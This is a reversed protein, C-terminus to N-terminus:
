ENVVLLGLEKRYGTSGSIILFTKRDKTFRVKRSTVLVNTSSETHCKLHYLSTLQFHQVQFSM